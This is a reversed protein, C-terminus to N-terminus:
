NNHLYVLKYIFIIIAVLIIVAIAASIGGGIAGGNANNNNPKFEGPVSFIHMKITSTFIVKIVQGYMKPINNFNNQCKNIM